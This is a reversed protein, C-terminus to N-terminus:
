GVTSGSHLRTDNPDTIRRPPETAGLLPDKSQYLLGLHRERLAQPTTGHVKRFDRYFNSVDDYDCRHAIEKISLDHQEILNAARIMRAERLHQGLTKGTNLKFLRRLRMRSLSLLKTITTLSVRRSGHREEIIRLAIRIRPDFAREKGGKETV